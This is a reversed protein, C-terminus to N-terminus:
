SLEPILQVEIRNRGQKKARYLAMDARSLLDQSSDEQDRGNDGQYLSTVGLSITVSVSRGMAEIPMASVAERVREAIIQAGETDTHSLILAFEEGGLRFCLDSQRCTTRIRAAVEKLVEDGVIHGHTDNIKKFHDLDVLVLSLGDQHRRALDMERQIQNDFSRKNGIGTLADTMAANLALQYLLANRLPYVLIALMQEIVKLEPELFRKGRGFSIEGLAEGQVTLNYQCRHVGLRDSQLHTQPAENLYRVGDVEVLESLAEMFLSIQESVDLTMQLKRTLRAHIDDGPALRPLIEAVRAILKARNFDITNSRTGTSM